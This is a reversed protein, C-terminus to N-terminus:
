WLWLYKITYGLIGVPLTIVPYLIVQYEKSKPPWNKGLSRPIVTFTFAMLIGVVCSAISFSFEWVIQMFVPLIIIGWIICSLFVFYYIKRKSTNNTPKISM